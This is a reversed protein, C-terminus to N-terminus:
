ETNSRFSDQTTSYALNQDTNQHKVFTSLNGKLNKENKICCIQGFQTVMKASIKFMSQSACLVNVMSLLIMTHSTELKFLNPKVKFSLIHNNTHLSATSDMSKFSSVLWKNNWIFSQFIARVMTPMKKEGKLRQLQKEAWALLVRM